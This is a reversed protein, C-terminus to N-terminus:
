LGSNLTVNNPKLTAGPAVAFSIANQFFVRLASDAQDLDAPSLIM